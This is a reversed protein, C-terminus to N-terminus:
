NSSFIPFQKGVLNPFPETFKGGLQLVVHLAHRNDGLFFSVVRGGDHDFYFDASGVVVSAPPQLEPVVFKREARDIVGLRVGQTTQFFYVAEMCRELLLQRLVQLVGQISFCLLKGLELVLHFGKSCQDSM